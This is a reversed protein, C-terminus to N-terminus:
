QLDYASFLWEGSIKALTNFCGRMVGQKWWVADWRRVAVVSASARGVKEGWGRRLAKAEVVGCRIGIVAM